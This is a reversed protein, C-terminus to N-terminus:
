DDSRDSPALLFDLLEYGYETLDHVFWEDTAEGAFILGLNKLTRIVADDFRNGVQIVKSTIEHEAGKARVPWEGSAQVSLVAERVEVLARIHPAEVQALMNVLLDARDVVAEDM